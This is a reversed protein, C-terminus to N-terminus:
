SICSVLSPYRDIEMVLDTGINSLLTHLKREFIPVNEKRKKSQTGDTNVIQTLNTIIIM